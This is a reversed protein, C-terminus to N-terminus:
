TRIPVPIITLGPPEVVLQVSSGTTERAPLYFLLSATYICMHQMAQRSAGKPELRRSSGPVGQVASDM